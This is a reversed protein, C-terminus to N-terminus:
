AKAASYNFDAIQLSIAYCWYTTKQWLFTHMLLM